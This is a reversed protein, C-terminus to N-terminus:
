IELMSKVNKELLELDVTLDFYNGVRRDIYECQQYYYYLGCACALSYYCNNDRDGKKRLELVTGRPNMFMCNTLGAGHSSIVHNANRMMTLQEKFSYDELCVIKFGYKILLNQVEAENNLYRWNAKQRSIFIKDSDVVQQKLDFNRILHDSLKKINEPNYNGSKAIPSPMILNRAKIYRDKPLYVINKLNFSDIIEKFFGSKFNEPFVFVGKDYYQSSEILRPLCDAMFHYYGISYRDFTLVVTSDESIDIKKSKLFVSLLYRWKYKKFEDYGVISEKIFKFKSIMIGHCTVIVNSYSAFFSQLTKHSFEHEFLCLDEKIFNKPPTRTVIESDYIM